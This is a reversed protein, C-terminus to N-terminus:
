QTPRISSRTLLTVYTALRSGGSTLENRQIKLSSGTRTWKEACRSFLFVCVCLWLCIECVFLSSNWVCLCVFSDCVCVCVCVSISVCVLELVCACVCVCVSSNWACVCVCLRSGPLTCTVSPPPILEALWSQQWWVARYCGFYSQNTGEKRCWEM